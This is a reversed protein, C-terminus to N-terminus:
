EQINKRYAEGQNVLFEILEFENSKQLLARSPLKYDCYDLFDSISELPIQLDNVFFTDSYIQRLVTSVKLGPELDKSSDKFTGALLKFLNVFNLGNQMGSVTPDQAINVVKSTQDTEYDYAKFDENRLRIFERQDEPSVTVQDLVTVKENVEIVLRGKKLVEPDIIVSKLQYNLALFFLEDGPRVMIEFEGKENTITGTGATNNIVNENPVPMNMYLVTGRLLSRSNEQAVLALAFLLTFIFSITKKM